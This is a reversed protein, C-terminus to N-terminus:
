NLMDAFAWGEHTLEFVEGKFGRAVVLGENLLENLAHEWKANERGGEGGFTQGGAQVFKGGIVAIKLISGDNRSSATKLLILAEQSLQYRPKVSPQDKTIISDVLNAKEQFISQLYANQHLILQLHNNVKDKLEIINDFAEVLGLDLCRKKFTQLASYQEPDISEPADPKSSFYIMAPKGANIHEEIEEVTGSAANGTPTGLRTWFVGILLDCDKLIRTNILEQAQCLAV